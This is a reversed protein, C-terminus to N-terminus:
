YEIVKDVRLRWGAEGPELKYQIQRTTKGDGTDAIPFRRVLTSEVVAFEDHGEYGASEEETLSPLYIQSLSKRKNAAYAVLSGRADEGSRLYVFVEPSSDADLDAVEAGVIEGEAPWEVPENDIELGEPDITVSGDGGTVEFTIGELELTQHYGAEAPAGAESPAASESAAPSASESGAPPAPKSAGGCATLLLLSLGTSVLPSHKM